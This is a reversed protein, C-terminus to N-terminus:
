NLCYTTQGLLKLEMKVILYQPGKKSPYLMASM